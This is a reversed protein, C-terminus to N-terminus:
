NIWNIKLTNKWNIKINQLYHMPIFCDSFRSFIQIKIYMYVILSKPLETKFTSELLCFLQFQKFYIKINQFIIDFKIWIWSKLKM